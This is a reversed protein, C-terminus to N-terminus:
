HPWQEPVAYQSTIKIMPVQLHLRAQSNCPRAYLSVALLDHEQFLVVSILRCPSHPPFLPLLLFSSLPCCSSFQLFLHFSFLSSVHFLSIHPPFFLNPWVSQQLLRNKEIMSSSDLWKQCHALSYYWIKPEQLPITSSELRKTQWTTDVPSYDSVNWIFTNDEYELDLWLFTSETVLYSSM